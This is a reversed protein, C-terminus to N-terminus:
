FAPMAGKMVRRPRPTAVPRIPAPPLVPEAMVCAMKKVEAEMVTASPHTASPVKAGVLKRLLRWPQWGRPASM